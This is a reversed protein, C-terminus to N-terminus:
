SKMLGQTKAESVAQTRSSVELKRYINKIHWKVTGLSIGAVRSIEKNSLGKEILTLIELERQSIGASEGDACSVETAVGTPMELEVTFASILEDLYDNAIGSDRYDLLLLAMAEGEDLFSRRFGIVAGHKLCESLCDYAQQREGISDLATCCLIRVENCAYRSGLESLEAVLSKLLSVTEKASHLDGMRARWIAIRAQAIVAFSAISSRASTMTLREEPVLNQLRELQEEAARIDGEKLLLRIREASSAALMRQWGRRTALREAKQLLAKARGLDGQREKIRSAILYARMAADVFCGEDVIDWRDALLLDAELLRNQEYCVTTLFCASLTAAVSRRGEKSEALQLADQFWRLAEDLRGQKLAILGLLDKRYVTVFLNTHGSDDDLARLQVDKAKEYEGAHLHAFTLVNCLVGIAFPLDVGRPWRGLLEAGLERAALTDDSLGFILARIVQVSFNISLREREPAQEIDAEIQQLICEADDFKFLLAMSWAQAVLLPLRRTIPKEPLRGVWEMLQAMNSSEVMSMACHEVWAVAKESDGAALAHRVAEAWLEQKAFWRYARRHLEAVEEAHEQLLRHKLYDAFLHHFRFWQGAEDLPQIFLKHTILFDIIEQCNEITSVAECLSANFREVLSTRLLFRLVEDSLSALVVDGMYASIATMGGSIAEKFGASQQKIGPSIAAIQLGAVWGETADHLRQIDSSSLKDSSTKDFFQRCEEIGFRLDRDSLEFLQGAARLGAVALGPESRGALILHFNEPTHSLFYDMVQKIVPDTIVHFDDLILYVQRDLAALENILISAVVKPPVLPGSQLLARAGEGVGPMAAGLSSVLYTMFGHPSNDESDLSLWAVARGESLLAKRWQALLTTKGFGASAEILTLVVKGELSLRKLLLPREVLRVGLRFPGLKTTILPLNWAGLSGEINQADTKIM